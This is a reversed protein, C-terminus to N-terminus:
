SKSADLMWCIKEHEAIRESLLSITGEDAEDQAIKIANNMDKIVQRHDNSLESIM